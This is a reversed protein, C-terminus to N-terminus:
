CKSLLYKTHKIFFLIFLVLHRSSFYLSYRDLIFSIVQDWNSVINMKLDRSNQNSIFKLVTQSTTSIEELIKSVTPNKKDSFCTESLKIESWEGTQILKMESTEGLTGQRFFHKLTSCGFNCCIYKMIYLLSQAKMACSSSWNTHM